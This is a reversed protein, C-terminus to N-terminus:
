FEEDTSPLMEATFRIVRNRGTDKARYLAVDACKIARWMGDADSPYNSIGISVTKHLASGAASFAYAEFRTRINEAVMIAGEESANLLLVLFEEGGARVAVDAERISSMLTDALGKIVVDGVDHGYTDNVMKFHDIDLALLSYSAKTRTAQRTIHDIFEDLFKRNYLGTLGDHFNSEQLIGMLYNSELVPRAAELYNTLMPLQTKIKTLSENGNTVIHILLSLDASLRYPICLYAREGSEDVFRECVNAFEDSYVNTNSRLARCEECLSPDSEISCFWKEHTSHLKVAKGTAQTIEYVAFDNHGARGEIVKLVHQYVENRNRDAEITRKFKYIDVLGDVIRSTRVLPNENAEHTGGILITIKSDIHRITESLSEYLSNLLNALTGGEDKLTTEIRSSFNGDHGKTIAEGLAEFLLMYRNIGRNAAWVILALVFISLAAIRIVTMMGNYRVDSIDFRMSVVGLVDNKNAKHCDLCEISASYPITVRLSVRDEMEGLVEHIAQNKAIVSADIADRAKEDEFGVGFQDSVSKARVVWISEINKSKEIRDIFYHRKDMIGNVMHVTLGDRVLESIVTAKDIASQVGYSRFNLGVIIIIALTLGALTLSLSLNVKHKMSMAM